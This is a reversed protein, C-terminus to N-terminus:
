YSPEHQEVIRLIKVDEDLDQACGPTGENRGVQCGAGEKQSAEPTDEHAEPHIVTDACFVAARKAPRGRKRVTAGSAAAPHKDAGGNSSPHGDGHKKELQPAGSSTPLSPKEPQGYQRVLAAQAAIEDFAQFPLFVHHKKSPYWNTSGSPQYFESLGFRRTKEGTSTTCEIIRFYWRNKDKKWIVRTALDKISRADGNEMNSRHIRSTVIIRQEAYMEPHSIYVCSSSSSAFGFHVRSENWFTGCHEVSHTQFIGYSM